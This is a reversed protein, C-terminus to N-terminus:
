LSREPLLNPEEMVCQKLSKERGAYEFVDNSLFDEKSLVNANTDRVMEQLVSEPPNEQDKPVIILEHVSSPLVYFDAQLYEHVMDLVGQYFITSAGYMKTENTLVFMKLEDHFMDSVGINEDFLSACLQQMSQFKVQEQEQTNRLALSVMEHESVGWAELISDNVRISAMREEADELVIYPVMAGIEHSKYPGQALFNGNNKEPLLRIRLKEKILEYDMIKKMDFDSPLKNAFIDKMNQCLTDINAYGVTYDAYLEEFYFLLGVSKNSDRIELGDLDVNSKEITKTEVRAEEPLIQELKRLITEQFEYYEKDKTITMM